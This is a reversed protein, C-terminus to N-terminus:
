APQRSTALMLEPRGEELHALTGDLVAGHHIEIARYRIDGQVHAKPQLELLVDAQVPGVITGNVIVQAARVSGEIRANEALMLVSHEADDAIVDGVVEGDICLGRSFRVDGRISMGPGIRSELGAVGSKGGGFWRANGVKRATDTPHGSM